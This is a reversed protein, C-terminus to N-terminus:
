LKSIKSEFIKSQINIYYFSKYIAFYFGKKGDLFGLKIFFAFIFFVFPLVGIRMLFYKAKQRATLLNNNKAKFNIFRNAEWTSYSNHKKIFKELNGFDRHEITSKFSGVTGNVIPHEHVEMDLDSWYNEEIKEYLAAGKKFLALKKMTVGYRLRSGLFYTSYNLWFASHSTNIITARIESIFDATLYEDADIFLIWDNLFSNNLLTWNRKKPYSGNWIFNLIRVDFDNAIELTKDSSCSDVVLVESFEKLCELCRKLHYEENKVPVIVTVPIKDM